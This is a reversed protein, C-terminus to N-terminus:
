AAGPVTRSIATAQRAVFRWVGNELRWINTYRRVTVANDPPDVVRDQGMVVVTDGFRSIHEITTSFEKHEIRGLRLLELLEKKRVVRNLPSNVCFDAAFVEDLVDLKVELFAQVALADRARVDEEWSLSSPPVTLPATM